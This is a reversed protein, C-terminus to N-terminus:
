KRPIYKSVVRIIRNGMLGGDVLSLIWQCISQSDVIHLLQWRLREVEMIADVHIILPCAVTFPHKRKKVYSNNIDNETETLPNYDM